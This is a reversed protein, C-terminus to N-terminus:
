CRWINEMATVSYRLVIKMTMPQSLQVTISVGVFLLTLIPPTDISTVNTAISNQNVPFIHQHLIYRRFLVELTPYQGNIYAEFRATIRAEM